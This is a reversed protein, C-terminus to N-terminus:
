TIRGGVTLQQQLVQSAPDLISTVRQSRPDITAKPRGGLDYRYSTQRTLPDTMTIRQSARNFQTTTAQNRGDLSLTVRSALDYGTTTCHLNPDIVSRNHGVGIQRLPIQVDLM